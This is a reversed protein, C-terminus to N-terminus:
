AARERARTLESEIIRRAEQAGVADRLRAYDARCEQPCWELTWGPPGPERKVVKFVAVTSVGMRRAIAAFSLGSSRLRRAEDHDFRRPTSM